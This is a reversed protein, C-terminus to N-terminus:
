RPERGPQPGALAALGMRAYGALARWRLPLLLARAMKWAMPRTAASLFLALWGAAAYSLVTAIAAGLPGHRPILVLNGVVNIVAGALHTVLSFRLLDEAVLWRSLLARMFIFVGAWIHLALIPVAAVYATGFLTTVLPGALWQMALALGLALGCLGDLGVQLGRDWAARDARKAWLVPFISAVLLVPVAYWVESLRAAVAYLGAAEVGQMRELMVIDIRLYVIEALGSLLLWPARRGFWALWGRELSPWAWRGSAGHYAILHAAGLLLYEGAFVLAVANAGGGELAVAIKLAAAILVVSSRWAVLRAPVMRVQFWFELVQFLTACQAAFLVLLVTRDGAAPDFLAWYVAGALVALLCGLARLWLAAALIAPEQDPKELLARVVLGAVGLQTLPLLLGVVALLYSLEGFGAPGLCRVLVVHTVLTAALALARDALWWGSNSLILRLSSV